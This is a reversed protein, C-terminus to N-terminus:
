SRCEFFLHFRSQRRGCNCWWCEDSQLRQPGTMRDYLFSGIAARGSLLLYYRQAASKAHSEEQFRRSRLLYRREPRVHDSIWQATATTRRETARRAPHPLSTQWRIRDPVEESQGGAAEKTM